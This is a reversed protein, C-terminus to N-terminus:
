DRGEYNSTRSLQSVNRPRQDSEPPHEGSIDHLVEQALQRLEKEWVDEDPAAALPAVPAEEPRHPTSPKEHPPSVEESHAPTAPAEEQEQWDRHLAIIWFIATLFSVFLLGLGSWFFTETASDWAHGRLNLAYTWPSMMLLASVIVSFASTTIPWFYRKM